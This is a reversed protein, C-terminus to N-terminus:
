VTDASNLLAAINTYPDMDSGALVVTKLGFSTM